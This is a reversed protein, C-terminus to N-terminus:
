QLDEREQARVMLLDLFSSVERVQFRQGFSDEVITDLDVPTGRPLYWSGITYDIASLERSETSSYRSFDGWTEAVVTEVPNVYGVGNARKKAGTIKILKVKYRAERLVVSTGYLGARDIDPNSGEILWVGPTDPIKVITQDLVLNFEGPVLFIRKKQGFDRDSIFRDYVQLSGSVGTEEFAQSADNWRLLEHSTFKSFARQLNM